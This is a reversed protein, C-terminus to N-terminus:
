SDLNCTYESYLVDLISWMLEVQYHSYVLSIIWHRNEGKNWIECNHKPALVLKVPLFIVPIKGQMKCDKQQWFDFKKTLFRVKQWFYFNKKFRIKKAFISNKTLKKVLITQCNNGFFINKEDLIYFIIHIWIVLIIYSYLVDLSSGMLELKTLVSKDFFVFTNTLKFIYFTSVALVYSFNKSFM